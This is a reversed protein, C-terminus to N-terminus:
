TFRLTLPTTASARIPKISTSRPTIARVTAGHSLYLVVWKDRVLEGLLLGPNDTAVVGRYLLGDRIMPPAYLINNQDLTM